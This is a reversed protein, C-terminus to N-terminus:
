RRVILALLGLAGLAGLAMTSPEPVTAVRFGVANGSGVASATGQNTSQLAGVDSFGGGRLGRISGGAFPTETWEFINGDQDSTGYFSQSLPGASAVTTVNGTLGNWIANNNYNATNAGPNSIDGTSNATAKTPASNSRTAYLWYGDVDGGQAAPQYFAAKYWESENPLFWTAGVNRTISAGNSPTATNGMITYAGTETDGSGQGNNLWNVFRISDYWTVFNVPKDAMNTKPAYTFHGSSGSRAIGGRADSGMNTDYLGLPDSKAKANLFDVYQANTVETTAICYAYSVGGLGTASDNSNGVDGVPVTPITAGFAALPACCCIASLLVLSVFRLNM